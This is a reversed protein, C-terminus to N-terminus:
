AVDVHVGFERAAPGGEEDSFVIGLDERHELVEEDVFPVIDHRGVVAPLGEAQGAAPGDVEDQEVV